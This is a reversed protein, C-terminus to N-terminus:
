ISAGSAHKEKVFKYVDKLKVRDVNQTLPKGDMEGFARMVLEACYQKWPDNSSASKLGLDWLPIKIVDTLAYDAGAYKICFQMLADFKADSISFEFEEIIQIKKNFAEEGLFHVMVSAAHYCIWAGWHTQWRIYVHSYSTKEYARIAWSFFPLKKDKPKSFGISIKRM